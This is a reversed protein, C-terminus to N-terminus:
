LTDIVACYESISKFPSGALELEYELFAVDFAANHIVLEAGRLYDLLQQMIEAFTPKDALFEQTIGHVALAGTDIMRKPNIYAHFDQYSRQRDLLEICGIEIIRHGDSTSLGTTETDLVIQRKM